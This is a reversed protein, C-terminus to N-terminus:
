LHWKVSMPLFPNVLYGLVPPSFAMVNGSSFRWVFSYGCKSVTHGGEGGQFIRAVGITVIKSLGSGQYKSRFQTVIGGRSLQDSLIHFMQSTAKM